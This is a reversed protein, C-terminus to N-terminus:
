AKKLLLVLLPVWFISTAWAYLLYMVWDPTSSHEMMQLQAKADHQNHYTM